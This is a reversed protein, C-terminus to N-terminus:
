YVGCALGSGCTGVSVTPLLGAGLDSQPSYAHASSRYVYTLKEVQAGLGLVQLGRAKPNAMAAQQQGELRGEHKAEKQRQRMERESYTHPKAVRREPQQLGAPPPKKRRGSSGSRRGKSGSRKPKATPGLAEDFGAEYGTSVGVEEGVGAPPVGLPAAAAGSLLAGGM